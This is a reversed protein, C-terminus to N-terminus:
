ANQKMKNLSLIKEDIELIKLTELLFTHRNNNLQENTDLEKGGWPSYTCGDGRDMAIRWALISSHTAMSEQLPDEQGLSPIQM